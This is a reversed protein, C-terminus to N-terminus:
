TLLWCIKIACRKFDGNEDRVLPKDIINQDNGYLNLEFHHMDLEFTYVMPIFRHYETPPGSVWDKGLDTFMNIHDRLIYIVPQRLSVAFTWYREGNWQVPSPMEGRIQAHSLILYLHRLHHALKTSVRCTEATLLHIDNLSSTVVISDLHVELLPEYGQPGVVM